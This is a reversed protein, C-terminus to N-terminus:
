VTYYITTVKLNGGAPAGCTIRLDEGAAPDHIHNLGNGASKRAGPQLGGTWILIGAGTAPITAAGLGIKVSVPAAAFDDLEVECQLVYLKVGAGVTIIATDTEAGTYEDSRTIIGTRQLASLLLATNPDRVVLGYENTPNANKVDAVETTAAGAVQHRERHYNNGGGWDVLETDLKQGGAGPNLELNSDAM